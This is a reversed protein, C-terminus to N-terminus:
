EDGGDVPTVGDDQAFLAGEILVSQNATVGSMKKINLSALEPRRKAFYDALCERIEMSSLEIHVNVKVRESRYPNSTVHPEADYVVKM